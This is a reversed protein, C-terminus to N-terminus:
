PKLPQPLRVSPSSPRVSISPAKGCTGAALPITGTIGDFVVSATKNSGITNQGAIVPDLLTTTCAENVTNGNVDNSVGSFGNCGSNINIAAESTSSIVNKEVLNFDGCVNVADFLHTQSITNGSVTNADGNGTDASCFFSSLVIATQTDGITNGSINVGQSCQVIIGFGAGFFNPYAVPENVNIINNGTVTGSAGFWIAIGNGAPGATNGGISNGTITLSAGRGRGEIGNGQFGHISSNQITVNAAGTDNTMVLVGNGAFCGPLGTPAQNRLAVHDIVGSSLNYVIGFPGEFCNTAGNNSGDITLDSINVGTAQVFIQGGVGGPPMTILAMNSGNSDIGKLTLPHFIAIQEQYTGPCVLVTGGQASANVAAQITGFHPLAPRCNGVSVTSAELAPGSALWLGLLIFGTSKM